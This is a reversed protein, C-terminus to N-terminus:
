RAVPFSQVEIKSGHQVIVTHSGPTSPASQTPPEVFVPAVVVEPPGVWVVGPGVFFPPRVFGGRPIGFHSLVGLHPPMFITSPARVGGGDGMGFRGGAHGSCPISTLLAAVTLTLLLRPLWM